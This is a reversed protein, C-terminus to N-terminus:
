YVRSFSPVLVVGSIGFVVGEDENVFVSVLFDSTEDLVSWHSIPYYELAFSRLM